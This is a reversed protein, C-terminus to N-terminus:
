SIRTGSIRLNNLTCTHEEKLRELRDSALLKALNIKEWNRCCLGQHNDKPLKNKQCNICCITSAVKRRVVFTGNTNREVHTCQAYKFVIVGHIIHTNRMVSQMLQKRHKYTNTHAANDEIGLYTCQVSCVTDENCTDMEDCKADNTRM